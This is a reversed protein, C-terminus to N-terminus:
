KTKLKEIEYWKQLLQTKKLRKSKLENSYEFERNKSNINIKHIDILLFDLIKEELIDAIEKLDAKIIKGLEKCNEDPIDNIRKKVNQLYDQAFFAEKRLDKEFWHSRFNTSDYFKLLFNEFTEKSNLILPYTIFYNNEDTEQSSTTTRLLKPIELFEEHAKLRKDFIKELIKLRSEKSKLKWSVFNSIVVGILVGLLGIIPTILNNLLEIRESSISM